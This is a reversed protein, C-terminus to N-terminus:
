TSKAPLEVIMPKRPVADEERAVLEGLSNDVYLDMHVARSHAVEDDAGGGEGDPQFTMGLPGDEEAGEV